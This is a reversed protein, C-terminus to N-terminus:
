EAPERNKLSVISGDLGSLTVIKHVRKQPMVDRGGQLSELVQRARTRPSNWPRSFGITVKWENSGPEYEIEELGLNSISEEAFIDSVYDKAVAIVQKVDM